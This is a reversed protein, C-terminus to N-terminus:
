LLTEQRVLVLMAVPATDIQSVDLCSVVGIDKPRISRWFARSIVLHRNPELRQKFLLLRGLM